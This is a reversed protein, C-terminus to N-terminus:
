EQSESIKEILQQYFDIREELSKNMGQLTGIIQDNGAIQGKCDEILQSLTGGIIEGGATLNDGQCVERSTRQPQHRIQGLSFGVGRDRNPNDVCRREEQERRIGRPTDEGGQSARTKGANDQEV